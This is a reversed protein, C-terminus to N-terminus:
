TGLLQGDDDNRVGHVVVDFFTEYEFGRRGRYEIRTEHSTIEYGDPTEIYSNAVLYNVFKRVTITRQSNKVRMNVLRFRIPTIAHYKTDTTYKPINLRNNAEIYLKFPGREDTAGLIELLRRLIYSRMIYYSAGYSEKRDDFCHQESWKMFEVNKIDLLEERGALNGFNIAM